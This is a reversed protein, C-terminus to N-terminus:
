PRPTRSVARSSFTDAVLTLSTLRIDAVVTQSHEQTRLVSETSIQLSRANVAADCRGMPLVCQSLSGMLVDALLGWAAQCGGDIWQRGYIRPRDPEATGGVYIPASTNIMVVCRWISNAYAACCSTM